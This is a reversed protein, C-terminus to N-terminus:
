RLNEFVLSAIENQVAVNNVFDKAASDITIMKITKQAAVQKEIALNLKQLFELSVTEEEIRGRQQIRELQTDANCRLYILLGPSSFERKIEDCVSKYATLKSSELGIEAYALDLSFSFDCINMLEESYQIKIQHYHQLMFTVETEFTYREPNTHYIKWFPNAKFNEIIANIGFKKMSSALSTKGSAIGGCIEIRKTFYLSDQM